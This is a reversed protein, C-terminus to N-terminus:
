AVGSQSQLISLTIPDLEGAYFRALTLRIDQNAPAVERFLTLCSRFKLADVEGLIATASKDKVQLMAQICERLRPGLIPHEWYAEAEAHTELGYHQATNSRGLARLQPFIYWIWHSQKCGNQLEGIATKYNGDQALVFRDLNYQNSSMNRNHQLLNHPRVGLRLPGARRQRPTRQLRVNSKM